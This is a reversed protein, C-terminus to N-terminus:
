YPIARRSREVIMADTLRVYNYKTFPSKWRGKLDIIHPEIGLLFAETAGGARPSHLGYLAPNLGAWLLMKKFDDYAASYSIPVNPVVTYESM